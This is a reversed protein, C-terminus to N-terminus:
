TLLVLLMAFFPVDQEQFSDPTWLAVFPTCYFRAYTPLTCRHPRTVTIESAYIVQYCSDRVTNTDPNMVKFERLVLRDGLFGLAFSFILLKEFSITIIPLGFWAMMCLGMICTMILFTQYEKLPRTCPAKCRDELERKPDMPEEDARLYAFPKSVTIGKSLGVRGSWTDM